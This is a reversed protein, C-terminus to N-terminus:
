FSELPTEDEGAYEVPAFSRRHVPCPGLADLNRLHEPTGYGKHRSFNYGPYLKDLSIMWADRFVKAVISAAAISASKCDGKVICKQTLPVDLRLYKGDILLMTPTRTLNLVARKMALRTAQFINLRDIEAESATGIGTIAHRAIQRFLSEREPAPVQKSDNLGRLDRFLGKRQGAEFAAKLSFPKFCVAAAVVPGALPGRGAEDVGAILEDGQRRENRDFEHLKKSM